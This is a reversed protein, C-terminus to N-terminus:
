NQLSLCYYNNNNIILIKRHLVKCWCRNNLSAHENVATNKRSRDEVIIEYEEDLLKKTDSDECFALHVEWDKRQCEESCYGQKECRSCEFEAEKGCICVEVSPTFERSVRSERSEMSERSKQSERSKTRKHKKHKKHKKKKKRSKSSNRRKRREEARNKQCVMAHKFWDDQQCEISCYGCRGCEGCELDAFKGCM